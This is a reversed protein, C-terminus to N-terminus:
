GIATSAIKATQNAKHPGISREFRGSCSQCGSIAATMAGDMAGRRCDESVLGCIDVVNVELTLFGVVSTIALPEPKKQSQLYRDCEHRPLEIIQSASQLSPYGIAHGGHLHRDPPGVPLRCGERVPHPKPSPVGEEAPSSRSSAPMRRFNRCMSPSSLVAGFRFHVILIPARRSSFHGTRSTNRVACLLQRM